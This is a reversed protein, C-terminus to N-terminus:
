ARLTLGQSTQEATRSAQQQGMARDAQALGEHSLAAPTNAAVRADMSGDKLTYGDYQGFHIQGDAVHFKNIGTLGDARAQNAVAAVTNDLGRDWPIGHREALQRVHRESDALLTHAQPSLSPASPESVPNQPDAAALAHNKDHGHGNPTNMAAASTTPVVEPKRMHPDIKEQPALGHEGVPVRDSWELKGASNMVVTKGSTVAQQVLAALQEPSANPNEAGIQIGIANNYLDMAERNAPNGPLGEHATTFARAWDRGFEQALRASAYTHRFADRHGDNGQWEDARKAPVGNPVTQDPYQQKGQKFADLYIGQFAKLGALGRDWSLQDLREGETQTMHKALSETFPIDVAGLARPRYVIMVDEPVQYQTRITDLNPRPANM